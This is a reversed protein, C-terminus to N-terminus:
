VGNEPALYGAAVMLDREAVDLVVAIKQIDGYAPPSAGSEIDQLRREQIGSVIALSHRSYGRQVRLRKLYSGFTSQGVYRWASNHKTLPKVPRAM